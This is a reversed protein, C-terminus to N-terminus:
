WQMLPRHFQEILMNSLSMWDFGVRTASPWMDECIMGVADRMIPLEALAKSAATHAVVGERSEKFIHRTMAFRLIRRLESEDLGCARSIQEFSAEEDVPFCTAIGFRYIAQIGVLNNHQWVSFLDSLNAFRSEM